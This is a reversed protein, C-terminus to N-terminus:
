VAATRRSNPWCSAKRPGSRAGEAPLWGGTAGGYNAFVVAMSHQAAYSRLRASDREVESPVVFMSALYITAGRKAANEPHSARSTDACVAVAATHDAWRVLPNRDGPHFVTDEAAPVIGDPSASTPFAGLHHKTHLGVSGDPSIIFAGIHLRSGIRVPAGVILIMRYSSAAAILPSLRPDSESFTIDDALDLEYGTL